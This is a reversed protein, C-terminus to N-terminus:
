DRRRHPAPALVARCDSWAPRSLLSRSRTFLALLEAGWKGRFSPDARALDLENAASLEAFDRRLRPLIASKESRCRGRM